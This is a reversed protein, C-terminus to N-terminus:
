RPNLLVIKKDKNFYFTYTEFEAFTEEDSQM